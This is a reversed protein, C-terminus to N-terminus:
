TLIPASLDQWEVQGSPWDLDGYCLGVLSGDAQTAYITAEDCIAIEFPVAMKAENLSYHSSHYDRHYNYYRRGCFLHYRKM